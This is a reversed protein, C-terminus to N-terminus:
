LIAATTAEGRGGLLLPPPELPRLMRRLSGRRRLLLLLLLLPSHRSPRNSQSGPPVGTTTHTALARLTTAGQQQLQRRLLLHLLLLPVATPIRPGKPKFAAALTRDDMTQAATPRWCRHWGATTWTSFGSTQQPATTILGSKTRTRTTTTTVRSTAVMAEEALPAPARTSKAPDNRTHSPLLQRHRRQLSAGGVAAAATAITAIIATHPPAPRQRKHPPNLAHYQTIRRTTM